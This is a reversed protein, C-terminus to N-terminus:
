ANREEKNPIGIFVMTNDKTQVLQLQRGRRAYTEYETRLGENFFKIKQNKSGRLAGMGDNANNLENVYRGAVIVGVNSCLRNMEEITYIEQLENATFGTFVLIDDINHSKLYECLKMLEQFRYRELPEGGSFTVGKLNYNVILPKFFVNIIDEVSMKDNESRRHMEPSLCGPCKPKKSCGSFWVVARRKPGLTTVPFALRHVHLFEESM